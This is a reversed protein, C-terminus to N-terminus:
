TQLKGAFAGLNCAVKNFFLGQCLHKRTFKKFNRLVGKECLVELRSGRYRSSCKSLSSSNSFLQRNNLPKRIQRLVVM